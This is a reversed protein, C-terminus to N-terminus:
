FLLSLQCGPKHCDNPGSKEKIFRSGGLVDRVVPTGALDIGQQGPLVLGLGLFLLGM